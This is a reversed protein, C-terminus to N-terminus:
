PTERVEVAVENDTMRRLIAEHSGFRYRIEDPHGVLGRVEVWVEANMFDDTILVLGDDFVIGEFRLAPTLGALATADHVTQEPPDVTFCSISFDLMAQNVEVAQTDPVGEYTKVYYSVYDIGLSKLAATVARTPPTQTPLEIGVSFPATALPGAAAIAIISPVLVLM